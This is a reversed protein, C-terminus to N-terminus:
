RGSDMKEDHHNPPGAERWPPKIVQHYVEGAYFPFKDSDYVFVARKGSTDPDNGRGQVQLICTLSNQVLAPVYFRHLPQM